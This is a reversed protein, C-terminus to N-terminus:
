NLMFGIIGCSKSTNTLAYVATTSVTTSACSPSNHGSRVKGTGPIGDDMKTDINWAEEPKLIGGGIWYVSNVGTFTLWNYRVDSLDSYGLEFNVATSQSLQAAVWYANGMKSKPVAVGPTPPTANAVPNVFGVYTGEILGAMALQQWARYNELHDTGIWGDGNGNCTGPTGASGSAGACASTSTTDKGWFSTANNMDGPLAFYKDRFTNTAATYRQFDSTVSRLESARILSQGALIGGTLLGLIVLVISLEVLSFAQRLHIGDKSPVGSRKPEVLSFGQRMTSIM